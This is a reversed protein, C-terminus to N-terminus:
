LYLHFLRIHFQLQTSFSHFIKQQPVSIFGKLNFQHHLRRENYKKEIHFGKFYFKQTSVTMYEDLRHQWNDSRGILHNWQESLKAVERRISRTLERNQEDNSLYRSDSDIATNHEDNQRTNFHM